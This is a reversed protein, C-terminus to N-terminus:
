PLVTRTTQDAAGDMAVRRTGGPFRRSVRFASRLPCRLMRVSVVQVPPRATVAIGADACPM